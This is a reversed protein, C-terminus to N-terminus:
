HKLVDYMLVRSSHDSNPQYWFYFPNDPKNLNHFSSDTLLSM